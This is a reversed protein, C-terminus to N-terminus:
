HAQTLAAVALSVKFGRAFLTQGCATLTAGTTMVDDVLLANGAKPLIPAPEFQRSVNQFRQWRDLHTQTSYDQTKQLAEVMPVDLVHSIGRALEAAQNFGRKRFKASPLPVPIVYDWSPYSGQKVIAAGMWIGVQRALDASTQYKMRHILLQVKGGSVFNLWSFSYVLPLLGWLKEQMYPSQGNTHLSRPLDVLCPSCVHSEAAVIPGKCLICCHPYLMLGIANLWANIKM